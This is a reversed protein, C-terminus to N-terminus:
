GPSFLFIFFGFNDFVNAFKVFSIKTGLNGTSGRGSSACSMQQNRFHRLNSRFSRFNTQEPNSSIECRRRLARGHVVSSFYLYSLFLISSLKIESTKIVNGHKARLLIM